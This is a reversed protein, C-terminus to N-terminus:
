KFGDSTIRARLLTAVKHWVARFLEIVNFASTVAKHHSNLAFSRSFVFFPITTDAHPIVHM